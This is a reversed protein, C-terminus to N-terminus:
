LLWLEVRENRFRAEEGEGGALPQLSGLGRIRRVAIGREILWAAVIDARNSSATMAFLKSQREAQSFGVVSVSRGRYEPRQLLEVVRDLDHASSGDFITTLSKLNFRLALPLRTGGAVADRYDPPLAAVEGTAPLSLDMPVLGLRRVLAQARPTLTHLAFSRGLASMMQGGYVQYRWALPYDQSRIGTPDPAVALGGDSVPLVRVGPPLPTGLEVVALASPDFAAAAAASRLDRHRLVSAPRLPRGGNLRERLFGELGGSAPGLLLRNAAGPASGALLARLQALDIRKLPSDRHVVVRAANLALLYEQDPSSLDGLQWGAERERADPRRALMALEAQGEVLRRFGEGGGEGGIEVVLPVGERLAHIELLGPARPVRRIGTYEMARLWDEVLAPVLREGVTHSGHIRLREAEQEQARAPAPATPVGALVIALALMRAFPFGM